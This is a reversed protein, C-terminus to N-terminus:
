GPEPPLVPVDADRVARRAARHEATDVGTLYLALGVRVLDIDAISITVDGTIIVGKDLVHNLLEGLVLQEEDYGADDADSM